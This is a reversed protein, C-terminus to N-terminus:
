HSENMRKSTHEVNSAIDHVLIEEHEEIEVWYGKDIARQVYAAIVPHKEESSIKWVLFVCIHSTGFKSVVNKLM